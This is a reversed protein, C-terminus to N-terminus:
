LAFCPPRLVTITVFQGSGRTPKENAFAHKADYRYFAFDVGAAELKAALDDVGDIMVVTICECKHRM